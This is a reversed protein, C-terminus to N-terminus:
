GRSLEEHLLVTGTLRIAANVMGTAVYALMTRSAWGFNLSKEFGVRRVRFVYSGGMVREM